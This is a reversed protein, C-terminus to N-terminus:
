LSIYRLKQKSVEASHQCMKDAQEFLKELRQYIAYSEEIVRQSRAQLEEGRKILQRMQAWWEATQEM